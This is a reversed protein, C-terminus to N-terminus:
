DRIDVLIRLVSSKKLFVKLFDKDGGIEIASTFHTIALAYDNNAWAAAGKEKEDTSTM